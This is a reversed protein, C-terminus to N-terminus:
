SVERLLMFREAREVGSEAGAILSLRDCNDYSRPHPHSRMESDYVKLAEIKKSIYDTIDFYTNAMFNSIPNWESSSPVEYALIKIPVFKSMGRFATLTAQSVIRHDVNLCYPSHTFVIDPLFSNENVFQEITKTVKLMSVQDMKNDPFDYSVNHKIGLIVCADTVTSRRDDKVDEFRASGGDTFTILSIEHGEDSLRAITGGCGLTEDDPHAALVLIKM